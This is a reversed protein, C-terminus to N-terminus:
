FGGRGRAEVLREAVIRDGLEEGYISHVGKKAVQSIL